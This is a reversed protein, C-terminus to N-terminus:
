RPYAGQVGQAGKRFKLRFSTVCHITATQKTSRLRFQFEAVNATSLWCEAM